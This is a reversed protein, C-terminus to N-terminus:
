TPQGPRGMSASRPTGALPKERYEVEGTLRYPELSLMLETEGSEGAEVAFLKRQFPESGALLVDYQGAKLGAFEVLARTRIPQPEGIQQQKRLLAVTTGEPLEVHPPKM